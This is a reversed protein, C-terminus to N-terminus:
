LRRDRCPNAGVDLPVHRDAQVDEGNSQRPQGRPDGVAEEERDREYPKHRVAPKWCTALHASGGAPRDGAAYPPDRGIWAGVHRRTRRASSRRTMRPTSRLSGSGGPLVMKSCPVSCWAKGEEVLGTWYRVHGTM